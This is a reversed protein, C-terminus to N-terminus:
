FPDGLVLRWGSLVGAELYGIGLRPLPVGHIELKPSIDLMVGVQYQVTRASIGSAPGEPANFYIDVFGYPALQLEHDRFPKSVNRRWEVGNRLRTFSESPLDGNYHVGAYTLEARYLGTGNAADFRYDSRVGTGYIVASVESSSAFTAGAKVYPYVDWDDNIWWDLEIGPELSLAGISKPLELHLLDSTQFNFFGVTLPFIFKIGPRAGRPAAARLQYGPEFTYVTITSGSIDYIGSGLETAFAYNAFRTDTTSGTDAAYSTRVLVVTLACLWTATSARV